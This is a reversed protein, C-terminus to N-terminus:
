QEWGWTILLRGCVFQYLKTTESGTTSELSGIFFTMNIKENDRNIYYWAETGWDLQIHLKHAKFIKSYAKM